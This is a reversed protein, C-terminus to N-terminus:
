KPNREEVSALEAQDDIGLLNELIALFLVEELFDGTHEVMDAHHKNMIDNIIQM